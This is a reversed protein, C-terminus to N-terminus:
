LGRKWNAPRGCSPGSSPRGPSSSKQVRKMSLPTASAASRTERRRHRSIRASRAVSSRGCPRSGLGVADPRRAGPRSVRTASWAGRGPRARGVVAALPWDLGGRLQMVDYTPASWTPPDGAAPPCCTRLQDSGAELVTVGQPTPRRRVPVTTSSAAVEEQDPKPGLSASRRGGRSVVGPRVASTRSSRRATPEGLIAHYRNDGTKPSRSATGARRAVRLRQPLQRRTRCTASTEASPAPCVPGSHRPRRGIWRGVASSLPAGAASAPRADELTTLAGPDDGEM